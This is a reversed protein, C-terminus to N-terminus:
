RFITYVMLPITVASLLTTLFIGSSAIRENGGYEIALMAGAIASPMGSLVVLVGLVLDNTIFQSLILWTLVPIVILRLLAVPYLRWQAAADKLTIFSLTSGIILMAVPITMGATISIVDMIVHPASFGTIAILITILAAILPPNILLKPNFKTKHNKSSFDGELPKFAQREFKGKNSILFIGLSFNLLSFTINFLAVYFASTPGFIAYTVPFGMFTVNAFVCMYCYLGRDSKHDTLYYSAPVAVALAITYVLLTMLMYFAMDSGSIDISGNM